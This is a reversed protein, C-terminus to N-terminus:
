ILARHEKDNSDIGYQMKSTRLNAVWGAAMVFILTGLLAILNPLWLRFGSGEVGYRYDLRGTVIRLYLEAPYIVFIYSWFLYQIMWFSHFLLIFKVKASAVLNEMRWAFVITLLLISGYAAIFGFRQEAHGGFLYLAMLLVAFFFSGYLKLYYWNLVAVIFAITGIVAIAVMFMTFSTFKFVATAISLLIMFVSLFPNAFNMIKAFVGLIAALGFIVFLSIMMLWRAGPDHRHISGPAVTLTSRAFNSIGSGNNHTYVKQKLKDDSFAITFFHAYELSKRYVSISYLDTMKESIWSDEFTTSLEFSLIRANNNSTNLFYKQPNTLTNWVTLNCLQSGTPITWTELIDKRYTQYCQPQVFASLCAVALFTPIILSTTM